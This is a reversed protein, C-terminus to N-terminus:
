PLFTNGILQRASWSRKDVLTTQFHREYQEPSDYFLVQKTPGMTFAVKFFVDENVSGVLYGTEYIGTVANRITSGPSTSTHFYAVAPRGYVAFGTDVMKMLAEKKRNHKRKSVTSRTGEDDDDDDELNFDFYEEQYSESDFYDDDMDDM